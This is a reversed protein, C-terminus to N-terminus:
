TFRLSAGIDPDLNNSSPLTSPSHKYRDNTSSPLACNVIGSKSLPLSITILDSLFNTGPYQFFIVTVILLLVADNYTSPTNSPSFM